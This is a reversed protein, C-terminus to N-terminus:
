TRSKRWSLAYFRFHLLIANLWQATSVWLYIRHLTYFDADAKLSSPNGQMMRALDGHLVVLIIVSILQIFFAVAMWRSRLAFWEIALQVTVMASMLNIYWTVRETVQGQVDAGLVEGGVPVVIAIYFTVGGLWFVWLSSAILRYIKSPWTLSPPQQTSDSAV